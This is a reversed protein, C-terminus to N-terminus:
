LDLSYDDQVDFDLPLAVKSYPSKKVSVFKTQDHVFNNGNIISDFLRTFYDEDIKGSMCTDYFKIKAGFFELEILIAPEETEQNRRQNRKLLLEPISENIDNLSKRILVNLSENVFIRIFELKLITAIKLLFIM